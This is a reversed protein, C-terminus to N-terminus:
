GTLRGIRQYICRRTSAFREHFLVGPHWTDYVSPVSDEIDLATRL